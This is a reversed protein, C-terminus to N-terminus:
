EIFQISQNKFTKQIKKFYNGNIIWSDNRRKELINFRKEDEDRVLSITSRKVQLLDEHGQYEKNNPSLSVLADLELDYLNTETSYLSEKGMEDFTKNTFNLADDFAVQNYTFFINSLLFRNKVIHCFNADKINDIITRSPNKVYILAEPLLQSFYNYTSVFHKQGRYQPLVYIQTMVLRKKDQISFTAFGITKEGSEDPIEFLYFFVENSPIYYGEEKIAMYIEPYDKQLVEHLKGNNYGTGSIKARRIRPQSPLFVKYDPNNLLRETYFKDDNM